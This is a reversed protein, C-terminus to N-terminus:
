RHDRDLAFRRLLAADDSPGVGTTERFSILLQLVGGLRVTKV